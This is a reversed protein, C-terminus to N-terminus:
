ERRTGGFIRYDIKSDLMVRRMEKRARALIPKQLQTSLKSYGVKEM